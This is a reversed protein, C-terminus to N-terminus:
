SAAPLLSGSPLNMAMPTTTPGGTKGAVPASTVLFAQKDREPMRDLDRADVLRVWETGYAQALVRLARSPPRVGGDPWKEYDGVRNGRM